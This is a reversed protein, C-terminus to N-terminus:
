WFSDHAMTLSINVPRTFMGAIQYYIGESTLSSVQEINVLSAQYNARYSLIATFIFGVILIISVLLNTRFLKNNRM